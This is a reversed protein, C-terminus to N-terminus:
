EGKKAFSYELVISKLALNIQSLDAERDRVSSNIQMAKAFWEKIQECEGLMACGGKCFRAIPCTQKCNNRKEIEKTLVEIFLPSNFYDVEDGVKGVRTKEAFRPCFSVNGAADVFLKNGLCSSHRCGFTPRNFYMSSLADVESVTCDGVGDFILYKNDKLREYYDKDKSNDYVVAASRLKKARRLTTKSTKDTLILALDVNNNPLNQMKLFLMPINYAVYRVDSIGMRQLGIRLATNVKKPFVVTVKTVNKCKKIMTTLSNNFKKLGKYEIILEM